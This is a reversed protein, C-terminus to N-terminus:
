WLPVAMYMLLMAICHSDSPGTQQETSNYLVYSNHFVIEGLLNRKESSRKRLAM